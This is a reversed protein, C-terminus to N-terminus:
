WLMEATIVAFFFSIAVECFTKLSSFSFSTTASSGFILTPDLHSFVAVSEVKLMAVAVNCSDM